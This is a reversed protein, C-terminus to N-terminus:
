VYQEKVKLFMISTTLNTILTMKKESVTKKLKYNRFIIRNYSTRETFFQSNQM